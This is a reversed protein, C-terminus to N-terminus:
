QSSANRLQELGAAKFSPDKEALSILRQADSERRALRYVQVCNKLLSLSGIRGFIKQYRDCGLAGRSAQVSHPAASIYLELQAATVGERVIDTELLDLVKTMDQRSAADTPFNQAQRFGFIVTAMKLKLASDSEDLELAQAYEQLAKGLLKEQHWRDGEREHLRSLTQRVIKIKRAPTPLAALLKQAEDIRELGLLAAAQFGLIETDGPHLTVATRSTRLAEQFIGLDIQIGLLDVYPKRSKVGQACLIELYARAEAKRNRSFEFNYLKELALVNKRDFALVKKWEEMSEAEKNQLTLLYAWLSHLEVKVAVPSQPNQLIPFIKNKTKVLLEDRERPSIGSRLQSILRKLELQEFLQFARHQSEWDRPDYHSAAEYHELAERYLKREEQLKAYLIEFRHSMRTPGSAKKVHAEFSQIKETLCRELFSKPVDITKMDLRSLKQIDLLLIEMAGLRSDPALNDAARRRQEQLYAAECEPYHQAWLKGGFFVAVFIWKQM